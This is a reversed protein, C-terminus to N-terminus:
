EYIADLTLISNDWLSNVDGASLGGGEIRKLVISSNGYYGPEGLHYRFTCKLPYTKDGMKLIISSSGVAEHGSEDFTMNKWDPLEAGFRLYCRELDDIKLTKIAFPIEKQSAEGYISITGVFGSETLLDKGDSDSCSMLVSSIVASAHMPTYEAKQKNCSMLVVVALFISLIREM